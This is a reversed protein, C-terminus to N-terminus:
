PLRTCAASDPRRRAPPSPSCTCAAPSPFPRLYFSFFLRYVIDKDDDIVLYIGSANIALLHMAQLVLRPRSLRPFPCSPWPSSTSAQSWPPASGGAAMSACPRWRAGVAVMGAASSTTHCCCDTISLAPSHPHSSLSLPPFFSAFPLHLFSASRSPYPHTLTYRSKKVERTPGM